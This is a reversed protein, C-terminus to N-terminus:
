PEPEEVPESDPEALAAWVAAVPPEDAPRPTPRMITSLRVAYRQWVTPLTVDRRGPLTGAGDILTVQVDPTLLHAVFEVALASQDTAEPVVALSTSRICTSPVVGLTSVPSPDEVFALVAASMAAAAWVLAPGDPRADSVFIDDFGARWTPAIETGNRQLTAAIDLWSPATDDPFQQRLADLLLRGELTSAPDSIVLEGAFTDTTLDPFGIPDPLGRDDLAARDFMVCLDRIAIPTTRPPAAAILDAPLDDFGAPTVEAFTLDTRDLVIADPLGVVVDLAPAEPNAALDDLVRMPDPERAVVVIVDRDAEFSEVVEPDIDIDGTAAVVLQPTTARETAEGCAAAALSAILAIALLRRM